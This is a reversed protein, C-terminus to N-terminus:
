PGSPPRPSWPSAPPNTPPEEPPSAPPFEAPTQAPPYVTPEAPPYQQAPVSPYSQPPVPTTGWSPAPPPPPSTPQPVYGPYAPPAAAPPTGWQPPPPAASPAPPWVGPAATGYAPAAQNVGPMGIMDRYALAAVLYTMPLAVFEGLGCAFFSAIVLLGMVFLFGVANWVDQKMGNISRSVASGLPVGDAILATSPFLLSALLLGPLICFVMGISIAIQSVFTYVLMPLFFPGGSFLDGVSIAEGRVQKVATRYVGAAIFAGYVFTFIQNGFYVGLPEGSQFVAIWYAGNSYDPQGNPGLPVTPPHGSTRQVIQAVIAPILALLAGVIWVGANAKFLEFAEGIWGFNVRGPPQYAGGVPMGYPVSM